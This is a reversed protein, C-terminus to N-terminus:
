RVFSQKNIAIPIGNAVGQKTYYADVLGNHAWYSDSYYLPLAPLDQAYVEQVEDVLEKRKSADTESVEQDLLDNLKQDATYRASNFFYGEGIIRNLIEPDGGMGGHSNLALDFNWQGVLSDLTKADVSRLNVKFGAKELQQRIMEGVRETAATVLLELVLPEGGKSFYQGDKAYGLESMLEATKIPDYKYPEVDPNYWESDPAFLGSSAIIGYGRLAVDVLAQRDIAYYLAQRLKTDSLPEKNHNIMIKTIGDRPGDLVVFNEKRLKEVTEAPVVVADVDGKELAAAAMENSIKVFKLQKVKPAGLYYGDYAEYLYTGQTKDYNVLKYPGTGILAKDDQFDAPNSVSKYIHEPLIPLTGVVMDLFPAYSHNLYIKVTNDDLAEAKKVPESNVWPYPHQKIYDITFVVDNATFKEGDNWTVNKRLSFVYADNGEMQWSEALAPVYGNQDKWVLTDFILSMRIYGPGRSYHGYPSPFGWDGTTDAITLVDITEDAAISTSCLLLLLLGASAFGLALLCKVPLADKRYNRWKKKAILKPM